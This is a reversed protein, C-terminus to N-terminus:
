AVLDDAYILGTQMAVFGVTEGIHSTEMDRSQEEQVMVTASDSTIDTLRLAATDGGNTTQMDAIFVFQDNDFHGSLNVKSGSQTVNSFLNALTAGQGGSVAIWDVNAPSINGRNGEQQDLSLQFGSDSVNRIRDTVTGSPTDSSVQALVIPKSDFTNADFNVKSFRGSASSSGATIVQGDALRHTGAEVAIWSIQEQTHGGDLYDWEAIRYQFGNGTVNQIEVTAPDLGNMTMPGMVVSPDDLYESFSVSHWVGRSSQDATVVGAEGIADAAADPLPAPAPKATPALSTAAQSPDVSASAEDLVIDIWYNSGNYSQNPMKSTSGYSYVGAGADTSIPGADDAANFYGETVAYKGNPAHYSVTYTEGAHLSVKNNLSAEQWGDTGTDSFTATGLKTGDAAWITAPMTDHNDPSRYVRLASISGDEDATFTMGLEVSTTDSDTQVRPTADATWMSFSSVNADPVPTPSPVPTPTPAPAAAPLNITVRATDFGGNGDSVEYTVIANGTANNAPTFVIDGANNLVATGKTSSVVKSIALTDGDADTDNKLLEAELLTLPTKPQTSFNIDDAAVPDANTPIPTPTPTPTTPAPTPTSPLQAQSSGSEQAGIDIQGVVRTDGDNDTSAVGYKTTGADIAPSGASLDFNGAAANVFEPDVGILNGNAATPVSNNGDNSVSQAGIKGNFIVNNAWVTNANTYGGYSNNDIATNNGNISPDAVAINNVFTNNSSQANSIEGRWTGSNANDVNNHYATNGSVTVYDSWTVQIGKGGNGYAINNEVLTPYTYNPYGSTQTSQFDDIIIGNGDTHQGGYTVNDHTVNDRIITRFGPTTTDGSINRNQYISIGSFWGSSANDYTENGEVLIFEAYNFQIGSEGNDHIKNNLISIHHVSNAEIGDGNAGYIEFGDVTVYNANVSIANYGNAAKIVAGGPVESRLTIDGAATGGKNIDLSENYTGSRVVIEDGAKLNANLAQSITRFPSNSAGSASDNGNTAVYYITM